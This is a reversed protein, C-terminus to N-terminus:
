KRKLAPTKSQATWKLLKKHEHLLAEDINNFDDMKKVIQERFAEDLARKIRKPKAEMDEPELTYEDDDMEKEAEKRIGEHAGKGANTNADRERMAAMVKSCVTEHAQGYLADMLWGTLLGRLANACEVPLNYRIIDLACRATDGFMTEAARLSGAQAPTLTLSELSFSDM